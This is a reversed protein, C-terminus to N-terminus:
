KLDFHELFPELLGATKSGGAFHVAQPFMGCGDSMCRVCPQPQRDFRVESPEVNVMNWFYGSSHDLGMKVQDGCQGFLFRRMWDDQDNRHYWSGDPRRHDLKWNDVDMETLCELYADTFGLSLGSNLYRYPTDSPPHANALSGDPFCNKEANWLIKWNNSDPIMMYSGVEAVLRAPDNLFFVDFADAFIIKESRIKGSEIAEKLLQPKRGLGRWPEGWGLILPDIGYRLCSKNFARWGKVLYDHTPEKDACAVIQFSM